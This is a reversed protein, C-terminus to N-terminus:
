GGSGGAPASLARVAACARRRRVESPRRRAAVDCQGARVRVRRGNRDTVTVTGARVVTVTGTCTEATTWRTGEAAANSFRGRVRARGRVVARAIRGRRRRQSPVSAAGASCGQPTAILRVQLRASPNPQTIEARAGVLRAVPKSAAGFTTAGTVVAVGTTADVAATQDLGVPLQTVAAIPSAVRQTTVTDAGPVANVDGGSRSVVVTRGATPVPRAPSTQAPLAGWDPTLAGAAIVKPFRALRRGDLTAVVLQDVAARRRVYTMAAGDPAWGPSREVDAGSTLRQAPGGGADVTYLRTGGEPGRAFALLSGTPSWSPESDPLGEATLQRVPAGPAPDTVYIDAKGRRDSVFALDDDISWTPQTDNAEDFTLRQLALTAVDVVYLQANGSRRSSFVVRRGDPSWSPDSDAAPDSTLRALPRGPASSYLWLDDQGALARTFVLRTGDPSWVPQRDGEGPPVLLGDGSGDPSVVRITTPRSLGDEYAIRGNARPTGATASACLVAGAGAAVVAVGVSRLATRASPACRRCMPRM